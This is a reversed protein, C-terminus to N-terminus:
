LTPFAVQSNSCDYHLYTFTPQMSIMYKILTRNTLKKYNRHINSGGLSSTTCGPKDTDVEQCTKIPTLPLSVHGITVVWHSQLM